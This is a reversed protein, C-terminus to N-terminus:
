KSYRRIQGNLQKMYKDLEKNIAKTLNPITDNTVTDIRVVDAIEMTINVETNHVEPHLGIEPRSRDLVDQPNMALNM